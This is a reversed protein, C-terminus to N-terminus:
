ASESVQRNEVSRPNHHGLTEAIVDLAEVLLRAERIDRPQPPLPAMWRPVRGFVVVADLIAKAEISHDGVARQCRELNRECAALRDEDEPTEVDGTHGSGVGDFNSAAISTRGYKLQFLM